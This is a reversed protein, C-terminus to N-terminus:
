TGETNLVAFAIHQAAVAQWPKVQGLKMTMTNRFQQPICLWQPVCVASSMHWQGSSVWTYLASTSNGLQCVYVIEVMFM